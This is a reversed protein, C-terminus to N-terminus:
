YTGDATTIINRCQCCRSAFLFNEFNPLSDFLNAEFAVHPFGSSCPYFLDAQDTWYSRTDKM